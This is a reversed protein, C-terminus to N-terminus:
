QGALWLEAEEDAHLGLIAKGVPSRPTVVTVRHGDIRLTRGGGDPLVLWTSAVDNEEVDVLAGLGVRGAPHRPADTLWGVLARLSAVREAQGRALYSAETARTDYKGESKSESDTAEASALAAMAEVGDLEIQFAALAADLAQARTM